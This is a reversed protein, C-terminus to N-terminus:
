AALKRQVEELQRRLEAATPARQAPNRNLNRAFFDSLVSPCDPRYHRIDPVGASRIARLIAALDSGSFVRVGAMCEYLVLSLSWLDFTPDPPAGGLAEPPLYFLTGVLRQSSGTALDGLGSLLTPHLSALDGPSSGPRGSEQRPDFSARAIGFDMLKPTGDRSYGINSPKIDRHLIDSAHLRELAGAMATGLEVTEHPLLSRTELREALTGGELYELILMPTGRWTEVGYVFALNPHSVSAATRAERRLRLADEPSLRRLTKVAVPRGLALDVARYVVGMGGAGIRAEFRFKGPLIYPVTATELPRGCGSCLASQPLFLTGCGSCEMAPASTPLEVAEGSGEARAEGHRRRLQQLELALAAGTAITALLQRDEKLFPLGSKKGGLAIAGLLSGDTSALPVLLHFGGDAIWHREEEALRRGASQPAELDVTLPERSSAALAALPSTPDLPRVKGLPDALLGSAPDAGLLAVGELHLARDIGHTVLDALAAHHPASQVQHVLLTLLQRADYRERFFRRDVTELVRQRYHQALVGTATMAALVMVRTGSFLEALTAGRERYLYASLAAFPVLAMALTSGRALAHQLARRAILRVDLVKHILVAYATTFPVSALLPFIVLNIVRRVEPRISFQFYSPSAAELLVELLAPCFGLTLGALFVRARRREILGARRTKLIALALAPLVFIFFAGSRALGRLLAFAPNPFLQSAVPALMLVGGGVALTSLARDMARRSKDSLPVEPFDRAFLGLYVPILVGTFALRLLDFVAALAAPAVQALQEIFRACYASAIVLFTVGLHLARRDSRGGLLLLAAGSGFSLEMVVAVWSPFHGGKPLGLLSGALGALVQATAISVVLKTWGSVPL